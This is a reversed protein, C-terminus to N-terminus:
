DDAFDGLQDESQKANAPLFILYRTIPNRIIFAKYPGCFMANKNVVITSYITVFTDGLWRRTAQNNSLVEGNIPHSPM